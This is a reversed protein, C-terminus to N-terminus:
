AGRSLSALRDRAPGLGSAHRRWGKWPDPGELRERSDALRFSRADIGGAELEAWTLPMALPAGPLARVSWAAVATQGYANRAVDLYLRGGRKAVRTETTLTDPHRRALERACSRAFDRVADFDNERRLPVVLHLGRSGTTKLASALGLEGLLDRCRLAAARVPRFPADADKGPPDLDFVLQDPVELRDTRSLWPHLAICAQDALFVLDAKANCVALTQTGGSRLKVKVRDLEEPFHDGVQKQYFGAEDIGDPHRELVLPRDALLPALRPWAREYYDILDGKSLGSRAFLLKEERSTEVSRRGYRRTAM